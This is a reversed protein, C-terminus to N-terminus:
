LFSELEEWKIMNIYINQYRVLDDIQKLFMDNAKLQFLQSAGSNTKLLNPIKYENNDLKHIMNFFKPSSIISDLLESPNIKQTEDIFPTSYDKVSKLGEFNKMKDIKEIDEHSKITYETMLMEAFESSFAELEDSSMNELSVHYNKTPLLFTEIPVYELNSEASESDLLKLDLCEDILSNVMFGMKFITDDELRNLINDVIKKSFEKQYWQNFLNNINSFVFKKDDSFLENVVDIKFTDVVRTSILRWMINFMSLSDIEQDDHSYKKRIKDWRAFDGFVYFLKKFSDITKSSIDEQFEENSFPYKLLPRKDQPIFKVYIQLFMFCLIDEIDTDDGFILESKEKGFYDSFEFLVTDTVFNKTRSKGNVVDNIASEQSTSVQWAKIDYNNLLMKFRHSIIKKLVKQLDLM